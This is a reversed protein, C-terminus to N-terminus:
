IMKKLMKAKRKADLIGIIPNTTQQATNTRRSFLNIYKVIQIKKAPVKAKKVAIFL